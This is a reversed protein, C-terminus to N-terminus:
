QKWTLKLYISREIEVAPTFYENIFELHKSDALSQGAIMIEVNKAPSWIINTDFEIYDDVKQGSKYASASPVKLEDVYRTLTNWRINKTLDVSTRLSVQHEPSSNEAVIDTSTSINPLSTLSLRIYSYNLETKLWELPKWATNVEVGHSNGEMGSRFNVTVPDTSVFDLLHDYENYFFTADFSFISEMFRYGTEWSVVEEAELNKNGYSIIPSNPPVPLVGLVVESNHEVRSPTRVARSVSAWFSQNEYPKWLLRASPQVESGTFENKEVKTGITFILTEPLISIEDQIFGSFLDTRNNEPLVSAMYTNDFSVDISRYGLGWVIDNIRLLRFRNQFDLDITDHAQGLYIEQRDTHDFYAQFTMSGTESFQHQWRGTINFGKFDITDYVTQPLIEGQAWYPSVVQHSRGSYIDGKLTWTNKLDVSSDLRFGGYTVGWDDYADSEDAHLTFSDESHHSIYFRGYLDQGIQKGFRLSATGDEHDGITGSALFGLTDSAEKTIINIIGNVANAGWLTAGTGRIVEIREIDELMVAQMDWYVGSYAPSYVSRGDIQVLLKNSFTGNFGRSTIAWKGSSIRSVQLGPVLRLLEPLYTAGSNRIDEQSIVYAAAPVDALKQEKRGASTIQIQMLSSLDMDLIETTEAFTQFPNLFYVVCVFLIFKQFVHKRHYM